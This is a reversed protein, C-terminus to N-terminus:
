TPLRITVHRRGVTGDVRVAHHGSTLTLRSRPVGRGHIRMRAVDGQRKGDVIADRVVRAGNFTVTRRDVTYTGGRLADLTGGVGTVAVTNAADALTALAVGVARRVAVPARVGVAAAQAARLPPRRLVTPPRGGARCSRANVHLARIFRLGLTLGCATTAPTHGANAVVAFTAHGFQAAAKRGQEIPTNNDLDGSMVLVPVDPLTLGRLPSGATPDAPWDLCDPGADIGSISTELWARPSFPRFAKANLAALGRQFQEHRVAPPAGLDYPRAYDHCEVAAADALSVQAPDTTLAQVDGARQGFVLRDLLAYDHHVAATVAAPLWGFAEARGGAFTVDALEREGLRLHVVGLPSHAAFRRPRHRLRGALRRLATLVRAGSCRRTRHCVLRIVRRTGRLIDRGWPDEVAPFAGDLVLSRVHEPHRAAYVPMLFTGYSDGWLDVRDFGLAARVADIDDAVAASGYLGAHSGLAPACAPGIADKRATLPDLAALGPCALAGSSGTGRPDVLLVDHRARLPAFASYFPAYTTAPSGPGGPNPVIASIPPKSTDTHPLLVYGIGIPGAAPNARDLPVTISGCM